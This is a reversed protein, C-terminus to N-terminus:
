RLSGGVAFTLQIEMWKRKTPEMSSVLSENKMMWMKQPIGEAKEDGIDTRESARRTERSEWDAGAWAIPAILGGKTQKQPLQEGILSELLIKKRRSASQGSM